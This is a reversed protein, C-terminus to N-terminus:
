KILIRLTAQSHLTKIRALYVGSALEATNIKAEQSNPQIVAVANGLVDFLSIERIILEDSRITLFDQAPNPYAHLGALDIIQDNVASSPDTQQIDDFLFTAQPSADNMTAYGLMLTLVNYVPPDGSFDWYYTAWAGSVTTYADKENAAGSETSEVKLKLLTGVPADTYVKMSIASLNAFDLFATLVIKSQAWAQGGSRIFQGVTASMNAADVYPNPIVSAVAGFVNEFDTTVVSEEFNIPLTAPLAEPIAPGQIQQVDDFLFTSTSSGDGINGYDFIFVLRDFAENEGHFNWSATEWEGSTTTLYDLDTSVGQGQLEFKIRTGVPATTFVKMSIVWEASLDLNEVLSVYSGAWFQGGARVVQCVTGSTNIGNMQPNPIVTAGAGAFSLIDTSLVTTEFDIPLSVPVPAAPGEVQEIDDFYFTSSSSGDGVNGFDFMFVVENLTNPVGLYVWELTEWEGSVSTFADAEASAGGGELKFKVTTGVPATTYVKMTIQTWVSFDLNESLAIKSGAYVAGGNRVISAVTSSPNVGDAMPNLTVAATGGDFDIFDDILIDGEFDIPLSQSYGLIAIFISFFLAITKM